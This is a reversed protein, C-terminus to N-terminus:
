FNSLSQTSVEKTIDNVNETMAMLPMFGGLIWCLDYFVSLLSGTKSVHVIIYYTSNLMSLFIGSVCAVIKLSEYKEIKVVVKWLKSYSKRLSVIKDVLEEDTDSMVHVKEALGFNTEKVLIENIMNYRVKLVEILYTYQFTYNMLLFGKLCYGVLFIKENFTHYPATLFIYVWSFLGMVFYFIFKHGFIIFFNNLRSMICDIQIIENFVYRLNERNLQCSFFFINIIVIGSIVECYDSIKSLPTNTYSIKGSIYVVLCLYITLFFQLLLIWAIGWKSIM